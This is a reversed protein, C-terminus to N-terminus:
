ASELEENYRELKNILQLYAQHKSRGLNFDEASKVTVVGGKRTVIKWYGMPINNIIYPHHSTIIFQLDQRETLIDTVADICNIGLSNEFEDILIVSGEPSLYLEAIYIFTKLMGASIDGQSVWNEVGNEKLQLKMQKSQNFSNDNERATFKLDEVFPFISIFTDKISKFVTPLYSFVLPLKMSLPLISDMIEEFKVSSISPSSFFIIEDGILTKFDLKGIYIIKNFDLQIPRIENEENFIAIISQWTALKPTVNGHFRIENSPNRESIIEQNLFLKEQLIRFRNKEVNNDIIEIHDAEKAFEGQWRYETNDDTVFSLDWRVGNLSSGNAIRRLSFIANLIQTKGAGSVGVLLNLNSFEVPELKWGRARDHYELRKIRM